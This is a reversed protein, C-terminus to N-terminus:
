FPQMTTKMIIKDDAWHKFMEAKIAEWNIIKIASTLM